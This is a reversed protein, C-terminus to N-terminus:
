PSLWPSVAGRRGTSLPQGCSACFHAGAPHAMGCTPCRLGIRPTEGADAAATKTITTSQTGYLCGTM